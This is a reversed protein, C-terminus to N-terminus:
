EGREPLLKEDMDANYDLFWKSLAGAADKACVEDLLPRRLVNPVCQLLEVTGRQLRGGTIYDMAAMSKIKYVWMEGDLQARKEPTLEGVEAKLRRCQDLFRDRERESEAISAVMADIAIQAKQVKIARLRRQRATFGWGRHADARDQLAQQYDMQMTKLSNHRGSLERLAQKYMGYVTGGSRTTIFYDMQLDSHAGQHDRLLEEISMM